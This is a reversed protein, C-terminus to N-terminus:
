ARKLHRAVTKRKTGKQRETNIELKIKELEKAGLDPVGQARSRIQEEIEEIEVQAMDELVRPEAELGAQHAVMTVNSSKLKEQLGANQEKLETIVM